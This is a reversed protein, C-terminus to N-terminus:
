RSAQRILQQKLLSYRDTLRLGQNRLTRLTPRESAFLSFLGHTVWRQALMDTKRAREYRRLLTLDALSRMKERQALTDCLTIVDRFGLNVGQGALPHIVHAADGVLALGPQVLASATRQQLPFAAAPTVLTLEGLSMDGAAAVLTALAEDTSQMLRHGQARDCSWVMSIHQDPLPLWALIGDRSFWQRATQQHPLQCRFNAVVGLQQYDHERVSIGAQSRLWSNAGDAGTLLPAQLVSGDELQLTNIGNDRKLGMANAAIQQVGSSTLCQNLAQQLERNEVISCVHMQHADYASFHLAADLDDGYVRMDQVDCVRAPNLESWVGLSELWDRNGASIAYIRSDWGAEAQAPAHPASLLAVRLSLADLALACASGVLGAGIVVVDFDRAIM